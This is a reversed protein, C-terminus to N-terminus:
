KKKYNQNAIKLIESTIDMATDGYLIMNRDLIINFGNKKAYEEIIKSIDEVIEKRQEDLEKKVDILTKRELDRYEQIQQKLKEEQAKKKDDKLVTLKSEVKKIDDKKADLKEGIEKKKKDLKKEYDQTKQYDNFVKLSDVYAIKLEKASSTFSVSGVLAFVLLCVIVRRM